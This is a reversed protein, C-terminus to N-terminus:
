TMHDVGQLSDSIVTPTPIQSTPVGYRSRKKALHAIGTYLSLLNISKLCSLFETRQADKSLSCYYCAGYLIGICHFTLTPLM